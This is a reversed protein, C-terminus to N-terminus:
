WRVKFMRDLTPNLIQKARLIMPDDAAYLGLQMVASLFLLVATQLIFLPGKTAVQPSTTMTMPPM